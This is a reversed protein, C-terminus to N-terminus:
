KTRFKKWFLWSRKIKWLSAYPYIFVIPIDYYVQKSYFGDKEHVFMEMIRKSHSLVFVGLHSPLSKEVEKTKDVEPDSRFKIVNEDNRPPEFDVFTEDNKEVGVKWIKYHRRWRYRKRNFSRIVFEYM